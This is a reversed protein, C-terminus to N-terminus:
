VLLVRDYSPTLLVQDLRNCLLMPISQSFCIDLFRVPYSRSDTMLVSDTQCDEQTLFVDNRQPLVQFKRLLMHFCCHVFSVIKKDLGLSKVQKLFKSVIFIGDHLADLKKFNDSIPLIQPRGSFM